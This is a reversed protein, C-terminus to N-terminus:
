LKEVIEPSLGTDEVIAALPRGRNKLKQAIELKEDAKGEAHGEARGEARGEAHGEAHGEARGEAHGKERAELQEQGRDLRNKTIAMERAFKLYDRSIGSVAREARMIGEEEGSLKEILEAAYDEHRYKMYICWKEDDQLAEGGTKGELFDQVRRELKPMEYFIIESIDTLQKHETEERYSYRQPIKNSQPFLIGNLFFIQYV